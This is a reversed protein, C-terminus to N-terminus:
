IAPEVKPTAQSSELQEESQGTLEETVHEAFSEYLWSLRTSDQGGALGGLAYSASVSFEQLTNGDAARVTM